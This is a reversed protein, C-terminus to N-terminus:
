LGLLRQQGNVQCSPSFMVMDRSGAVGINHGRFGRVSTDWGEPIEFDGEHCCYAIRYREGNEVAWEYAHM